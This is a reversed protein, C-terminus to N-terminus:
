NFGSLNFVCWKLEFSSQWFGINLCITHRSGFSDIVFLPTKGTFVNPFNTGTKSFFNIQHVLSGFTWIWIKRLHQLKIKPHKKGTLIRLIGLQNEKRKPRKTMIDKVQVNGAHSMAKVSYTYKWEYWNKTRIYAQVIIIEFM